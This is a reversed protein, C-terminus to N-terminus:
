TWVEFSFYHELVFFHCIIDTCLNKNIQPFKLTIVNNIVYKTHVSIYIETHVAISFCQVCFATNIDTIDRIDLRIEHGSM